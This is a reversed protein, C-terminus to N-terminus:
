GEVTGGNFNPFPYAIEDWVKYHSHYRLGAPISQEVKNLKALLLPGQAHTVLLYRFTSHVSSKTLEKGRFIHNYDPIHKKNTNSTTHIEKWIAKQHIGSSRM